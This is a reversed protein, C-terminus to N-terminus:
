LRIECVLLPSFQGKAVFAHHSPLPTGSEQTASVWWDAHGSEDGFGNVMGDLFDRIKKYGLPKLASEYWSTLAKVQQPTTKIGTHSIPM